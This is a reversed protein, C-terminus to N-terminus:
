NSVTRLQCLQWLFFSQRDHLTPDSEYFFCITALPLFKDALFFYLNMLLDTTGIEVKM